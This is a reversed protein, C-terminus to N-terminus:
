QFRKYNSVKPLLWFLVNMIEPYVKTYRLLSIKLYFAHISEADPFSEWLRWFRPEIKFPPSVVAISISPSCKWLPHKLHLLAPKTQAESWVQCHNEWCAPTPVLLILPTVISLVGLFSIWMCGGDESRVPSSPLIGMGQVCVNRGM